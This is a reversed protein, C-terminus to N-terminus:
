VGQASRNKPQCIVHVLHRAPVEGARAAPDGLSINAAGSIHVERYERPERVDIITPDVATALADVTAQTM